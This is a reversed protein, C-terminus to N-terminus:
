RTQFSSKWCPPMELWKREEQELFESYRENKWQSFGPSFKCFSQFVVRAVNTCEYPLRIGRLTGICGGLAQVAVAPLSTGKGNKANTWHRVITGQMPCQEPSFVRALAVAIGGLPVLYHETAEWLMERPIDAVDV